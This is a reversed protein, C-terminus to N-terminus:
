LDLPSYLESSFLVFSSCSSLSFSLFIKLFMRPGLFLAPFFLLLYAPFIASVFSFRLNQVLISLSFRNVLCIKSCNTPNFAVVFRHFIYPPWVSFIRIMTSTRIWSLASNLFRCIWFPFGSIIVSSFLYLLLPLILFNQSSCFLSALFGWTRHPGFNTLIPFFRRVISTLFPIMAFQIRTKNM